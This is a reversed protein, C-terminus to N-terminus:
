GNTGSVGGAYGHCRTDARMDARETVRARVGRAWSGTSQEVVVERIRSGWLWQWRGAKLLKRVCGARARGEAAAAWKGMSWAVVGLDLAAEMAGCRQAVDRMRGLTLSTVKRFPAHTGPVLCAGTTSVGQLSQARRLMAGPPRAHPLSCPVPCPRLAPTAGSAAGPM